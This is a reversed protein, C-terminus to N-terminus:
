RVPSGAARRQAEAAVMGVAYTTLRAIWDDLADPADLLAPALGAIVDQAIMLHVVLSTIAISLRQVELDPAPLALHRALVTGLAQHVPNISHRIEEDWLGTPELIERFRLAVSHRAADGQRMPELMTAMFGHLAQSLDLQPDIFRAIDDEPRGLPEFFVARYLGAKDGFHYSISAVNTHAADAIERISTNGYGKAAFLPLACNLLRQRTPLADDAGGDPPATDARVPPPSPPM